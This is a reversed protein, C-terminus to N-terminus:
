RYVVEMLSDIQQQGDLCHNYYGWSAWLCTAGTSAVDQLHLPHDDVFTISAAPVNNAEAIRLIAEHKDKTSEKSFIRERPMPVQFHALLPVVAGVNKTTVIYISFTESLGDWARSFQNYITHIGLWLSSHTTQFEKRTSFFLPEFTDITEGHETVWQQFVDQNMQDQPFDTEMAHMLLWYQGAPRVMYRHRRFFAATEAPVDAVDTVLPEATGGGSFRRYANYTTLLTEDISNCIVGDFDLCLIPKM